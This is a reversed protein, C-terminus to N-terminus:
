ELYDDEQKLKSKLYQSFDSYNFGKRMMYSACKNYIDKAGRNRYIKIAKDLNDQIISWKAKSSYQDELERDILEQTLGKNRLKYKIESKSKGLDILSRVYLEALRSDSIFNKELCFSIVLDILSKHLKLKELYKRSEYESHEQKALYTFLRDRSYKYLLDKIEKFEENDIETKTWLSKLLKKPLVGWIRDDIYVEFLSKSNFRAKFSIKM